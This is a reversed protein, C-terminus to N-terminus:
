RTAEPALALQDQRSEAEIRRRAVEFCHPDSEIGVFRRALRLAAVGTTGSGMFADLCAGGIPVVSRVIHTMLALPKQTPHGNKEPMGNKLPTAVFTNQRQRNGDGFWAGSQYAYIALEFASPWWNGPAAPPSYPKIWAFPKPVFHVSRLAAQIPAVTDLGSFIFASGPAKVLAVAAGVAAGVAAPVGEADDWEFAMTRRGTPSNNTGFDNVIGYPPDTVVADISGPPLQPLIARCDGLYLRARGDPTTWTPAIV